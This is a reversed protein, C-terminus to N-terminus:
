NTEKMEKMKKLIKKGAPGDKFVRNGTDPNWIKVRGDPTVEEESEGEPIKKVRSKKENEHAVEYEAREENDLNNKWYAKVAENKAKVGKIDKTIEKIEESNANKWRTFATPNSEPKPSKSNKSSHEHTSPLRDRLKENKLVNDYDLGQDECIIRIIEEISKASM